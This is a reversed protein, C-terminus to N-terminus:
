HTANGFQLIYNCKHCTVKIDDHPLEKMSGAYTKESYYYSVDEVDMETNGCKPCAIDM